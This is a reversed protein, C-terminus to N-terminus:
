KRFEDCPADDFETITSLFCNDTYLKKSIERMNKSSNKSNM